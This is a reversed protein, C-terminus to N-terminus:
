HLAAGERVPSTRKAGGVIRRVQRDTMDFLHALAKAKLGQEAQRRIAQDRWARQVGDCTSLNLIEGRFAAVLKSADDWGMVRVLEHERDPKLKAPIYISLQQANPNTSRTRRWTRVLYLARDRGIVDAVQQTRAPLPETHM